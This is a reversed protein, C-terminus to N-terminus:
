DLKLRFLLGGDVTITESRTTQEQVELLLWDFLRYEGRIVQRTDTESGVTADLGWMFRESVEDQITIGTSGQASPILDVEDLDLREEVNREVVDIVPRLVVELTQGGAGGASLEDVTCGTLILSLQDRQDYFPTSELEFTLDYPLLGQVYATIFVEDAEDLTGTRETSDFTSERARRVCPRISAFLESDLVPMPYGADDREGRFELTASRVDFRRGRYSVTGEELAEMEGTLTMERLRGTLSLETRFEMDLEADAVTSEVLFRDRGHITLATDIAGLTPVRHWVPLSFADVTRGFGGFSLSDGVVDFDRYFRADVIVVDGSVRWTEADQLDPAEFRLEDSTLTVNLQNPIRYALNTVFARYDISSPTFGSLGIEGWATFDGGYVTGVLPDARPVVMADSDVRMRGSSFYVSTGLGRPAIRAREFSLEGDLGPARLDGFVKLDVHVTGEADVFLDPLFRLLSFDTEGLVVFRIQDQEGGLDLSGSVRLYHEGTGISLSRLGVRHDVGADTMNTAWSIVAPTTIDFTREDIQLELEDLALEAEFVEGGIPDLHAVLRGTSSSRDVVDEFGPWHAEISANDFEGTLEWISGDLPIVASLGVDSAVTGAVEVAGDFTDFTLAAGGVEFNLIEIDTSVLRGAVDPSDFTGEVRVDFDTRGEVEIGLEDVLLFEELRFRRGHATLSLTREGLDVMADGTLTGKGKVVFAGDIEVRDNSLLYRDVMLYDIPEGFARFDLVEFRTGLVVPSGVSGGLHFTADFEADIGADPALSALDLDDLVVSVDLGPDPRTSFVSGDFLELEGRTRLSALPSDLTLDDIVLADGRVGLTADIHFRPYDPDSTPKDVVVELDGISPSSLAGDVLFETRASVGAPPSAVGFVSLWDGLADTELAMRGDAISASVTDVSGFFDVRDHASVLSLGVPAGDAGFTVVGRQSLTADVDLRLSSRPLVAPQRRWRLALDRAVGQIMPGQITKDEPTSWAPAVELAKLTLDGTLFAGPAVGPECTAPSTTAVVNALEVISPDAESLYPRAVHDIGVGDACLSLEWTGNRPVLWGGGTLVGDFIEARADDALVMRGDRWSLAGDFSRVTWDLLQVDALRLRTAGDFFRVSGHGEFQLPEVTSAGTLPTDPSSFVGPLFYDLVGSDPVLEIRAHGDYYIVGRERRAVKPEEPILRLMGGSDFVIGEGVILFRDVDIDGDHWRFHEIDVGDVAVDLLGRDGPEPEPTASYAAAWPRAWRDIEWQVTSWSRKGSGLDFVRESLVVRGSEATASATIELHGRGAELQGDRLEVSDFRIMTDPLDILVDFDVLHVDTFSIIPPAETRAKPRFEGQFAKVLGIQGDPDQHFLLRGERGECHHIMIRNRFLSAPNFSCTLQRAEIVSRGSLDAVRTDYLQVSLLDAGFEVFEFELRGHVVDSMVNSLLVSGSHSNLLLFVAAYCGILAALPGAFVYGIRYPSRVRHREIETMERLLAVVPPRRGPEVM